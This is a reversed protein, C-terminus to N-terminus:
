SLSSFNLALLEYLSPLWVGERLHAGDWIRMQHSERCSLGRLHSDGGGVLLVCSSLQQWGEELEFDELGLTGLCGLIGPSALTVWLQLMTLHFLLTGFTGEADLFRLQCCSKGRPGSNSPPRLELAIASPSSAHNGVRSSPFGISTLILHAHRHAPCQPQGKVLVTRAEAWQSRGDSTLLGIPPLREDENSAM